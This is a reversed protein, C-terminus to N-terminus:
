LGHQFQEELESLERNLHEKKRGTRPQGAITNTLLFKAEKQIKREIQRGKKGSKSNNSPRQGQAWVRNPTNGSKIAEAAEDEVTSGSSRPSRM